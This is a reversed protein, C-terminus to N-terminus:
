NEESGLVDDGDEHHGEPSAESSSSVDEKNGNDPSKESEQGESGEQVSSTTHASEVRKAVVVLAPRLLREHIFYGKQYEEMITGTEFETTEIQQIAEHRQPDFPQGKSEFPEVGYKKLTSLIQRHVMGIGEVLSNEEGKDRAHAMAREMNDVAPVLDSVIKDIGFKRLDEKERESRRRYNELDAISRLLRNNTEEKEEKLTDRESQVEQLEERAAEAERRTAKLKEQLAEIEEERPGLVEPTSSVEGVELAVVEGEEDDPSLFLDEESLEEGLDSEKPDAPPYIVEVLIEDEDTPISDDGDSDAIIETAEEEGFREEKKGASSPEVQDEGTSEDHQKKEDTM